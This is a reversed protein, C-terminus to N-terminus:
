LLEPALTAIKEFGKERVERAVPGTIRGGKPEKTKGELVVCANDDFRIYSGDPRRYGKKQRVIVARVVDHKKVLRRPEAEKVTGVIADGLQAYRRKSGGLVHFCQLIKAGSNDAVNLMTRPQIM